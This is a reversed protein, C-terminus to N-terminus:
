ISAPYFTISPDTVQDLTGQDCGYFRCGLLWLTPPIETISLAIKDDNVSPSSAHKDLNQM